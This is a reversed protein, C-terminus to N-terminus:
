ASQETLSQYLLVDSLFFLPNLFIMVLVPLVSVILAILRQQVDLNFGTSSVILANLVLQIVIAILIGFLLFVIKPLIIRILVAWFKGQTLARSKQLAQKNKIHDLIAAYPAMMYYLTWKTTLIISAILGLILLINATGLLWANQALLGIAGLILAPGFTIIQALLLTLGVLVTVVLAPFYRRQTERMVSSISMRKGDIVSKAGIALSVFVWFGLLPSLLLNAFSYLAVGTVEGFTFKTHYAIAGVSPYLLLAITNLIAVLVLWGSLQLFFPLNARYKDWSQDILEGVSILPKMISLSSLRSLSSPGFFLPFM